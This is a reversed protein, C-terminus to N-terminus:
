NEAVFCNIGLNSKGVSKVNAIAIAGLVRM